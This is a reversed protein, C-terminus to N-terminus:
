YREDAPTPEDCDCSPICDACADDCSFSPDGRVTTTKSMIYRLLPQAEGAEAQYAATEAPNLAIPPVGISSWQERDLQM